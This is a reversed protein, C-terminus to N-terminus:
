SVQPSVLDIGFQASDEAHSVRRPRSLLKWVPFQLRPQFGCREFAKRSAENGRIYLTVFGHRGGGQTAMEAMASALLLPLLRRGRWRPLTFAKYVYTWGDAFRFRLWNDIATPSNAALFVYSALEGDVFAGFCADDRSAIGELFRRSIGHEPVESFQALETRDIRRIERRPAGARALPSLRAAEHRDLTLCEYIERQIWPRMLAHLLRKRKPITM